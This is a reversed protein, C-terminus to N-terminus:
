NLIFPIPHNEKAFFVVSSFVDPPAAPDHAVFMSGMWGAKERTDFIQNVLDRLGDETTEKVTVRCITSGCTVNEIRANGGALPALATAIQTEARPSWNPDRPEHSLVEEIHAAHETYTPPEPRTSTPPADPKSGERPSPQKTITQPAALSTNAAGALLALQTRAVTGLENARSAEADAIVDCRHRLDDLHRRTARRDIAVVAILLALTGWWIM